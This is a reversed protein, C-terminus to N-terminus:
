VAIYKINYLVQISAIEHGNEVQQEQKRDQRGKHSKDHSGNAGNSAKTRLRQFNEPNVANAEHRIERSANDDREEPRLAHYARAFRPAKVIPTQRNFAHAPRGSRKLSSISDPEAYRAASATHSLAGPSRPKVQNIIPAVKIRGVRIWGSNRQLDQELRLFGDDGRADETDGTLRAVETKNGTVAPRVASRHSEKDDPLAPTQEPFRRHDPDLSSDRM